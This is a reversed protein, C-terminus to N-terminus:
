GGEELSVVVFRTQGDRGVLLLVSKKEAERAADVAAVFEEATAVDSSGVRKIVDGARLGRGAADSDADVETIVVGAEDEDLGYEERLADDAAAVQLGLVARTADGGAAVREGDDGVTVKLTVREDDRWVQLEVERGQETVAVLKPLETMKAVEKGDYVLIVDGAQLGAKEAPTDELVQTVLAGAAKELGLSEAIEESVTQIHVGLFGRQVVGTDRLQTIVNKAMSSPIAFGIGVSGGSPSYIASNVGIVEGRMNFLPGGSNGRNIHADTQIFDDLPGAQIDRGRASIIGRTVTGGLGFPNGIAFVDHGVRAADSDGFQVFPLEEESTVELLALDTKEDFGKLEAPRRTGDDFVVEIEDAGDIVHHNTVVLGKADVIFGSGVATTRRQRPRPAPADDRRGPADDFFRRFFEELQPPGGYGQVDASGTTSINVVAPRVADVLDAFADNFAIQPADAAAHTESDTATEAVATQLSLAVAVAAACAIRKVFTKM